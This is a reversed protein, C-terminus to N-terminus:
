VTVRYIRRTSASSIQQAGEHFTLGHLEPDPVAVEDLV